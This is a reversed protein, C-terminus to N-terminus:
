ERIVTCYARRIPSFVNHTVIAAHVSVIHHSRENRARWNNPRQKTLSSSCNIRRQVLRGDTAVDNGAISPALAIFVREGALFTLILGEAPLM